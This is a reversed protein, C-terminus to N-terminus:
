RSLCCIDAVLPYTACRFELGFCEKGALGWPLSLPLLPGGVERTEPTLAVNGREKSNVVETIVAEM